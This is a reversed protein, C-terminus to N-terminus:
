TEEIKAKLQNDLLAEYIPRLDDYEGVKVSCRDKHHVILACQEAQQEHHGCYKMLCEIVHDFTNVDDNYLVIQWPSQNKERVITQEEKKTITSM